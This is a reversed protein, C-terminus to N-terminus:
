QSRRYALLGVDAESEGSCFREESTSQGFGANLRDLVNDFAADFQGTKGNQVQAPRDEWRNQNLFTAPNLWPRDPPKSRVYARLGEQIDLPKAGRKIASRFSKEAAPKGVKNPWESWFEDFANPDSSLAAERTEEKKEAETDTKQIQPRQTETESVNRKGNRFRKVRETSVDSKYQRGNWNHPAFGTETKDLLGAKVLAAIIETAKGTTVRLQIAVDDLAPLAGENKSAICLMAIWHWRMAEPLKLIKPDNITDDYLRLWRM